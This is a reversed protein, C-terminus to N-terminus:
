FEGDLKRHTDVEVGYIYHDTQRAISQERFDTTNSPEARHFEINTYNDNMYERFINVIENRYQRALRNSESETDGLIWVMMNVTEDETLEGFAASFRELEDGVSKMIYIAPDQTNEKAKQPVDENFEIIPDADPWDTNTELIEKAMARSDTKSSTPIMVTLTGEVTLEGEVTLTRSVTQTEGAVVLSTDGAPVIRSM